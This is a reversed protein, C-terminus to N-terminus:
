VTNREKISSGEERIRDKKYKETDSFRDRYIYIETETQAETQIGDMGGDKCGEEGNSDTDTYTQTHTHTHTTQDEVGGGGRVWHQPAPIAVLADVLEAVGGLTVAQHTPPRLASRQDVARHTGTGVVGGADGGIEVLDTHYRTCM